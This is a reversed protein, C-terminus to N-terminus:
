VGDKSYEWKYGGTQRLEGTCCRSIHSPFIGLFQGASKLSEWTRVFTGDLTYQNVKKCRGASAREITKGHHMNYIGTCWELNDAMNNTKVEDKHNVQPYNNPNPIFAIAVLRHVTHTTQKKNKTMGVILYGRAGTGLKMLNGTYTSVINGLNSVKYLGEYGVIDKWVEM